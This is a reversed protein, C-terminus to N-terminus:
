VDLTDNLTHCLYILSVILESRDHHVMSGTERFVM